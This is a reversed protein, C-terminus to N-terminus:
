CLCDNTPGHEFPSNRYWALPTRGIKVVGVFNPCPLIKLLTHWSNQECPPPIGAHMAPPIGAHRATRWPSPIGAHRAPRSAWVRPSLQPTQSPFDGPGCRTPRWAWVPHNGLMCPPLSGLCVAVAAPPVCGVPICEQKWQNWSIWQYVTM